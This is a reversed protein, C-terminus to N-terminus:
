WIGLGVGCISAMSCWNIVVALVVLIGRTGGVRRGGCVVGWGWGGGGDGVGMGMGLLAGDVTASCGLALRRVGYM